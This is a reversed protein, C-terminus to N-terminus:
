HSWKNQIYQLIEYVGNLGSTGNLYAIQIEVMAKLDSVTKSQINFEIHLVPPTESSKIVDMIHGIERNEDLRRRKEVIDDAVSNSPEEKENDPQSEVTQQQQQEQERALQRRKRRQNKWSSSLAVFQFREGTEIKEPNIIETETLESLIQRDIYHLSTM